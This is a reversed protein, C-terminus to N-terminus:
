NMSNKKNLLYAFLSLNNKESPHYYIEFSNKKEKKHTCKNLIFQEVVKLLKISEAM